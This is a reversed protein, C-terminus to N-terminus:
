MLRKWTRGVEIMLITSESVEFKESIEKKTLKKEKLLKQIEYIDEDSITKWLSDIM